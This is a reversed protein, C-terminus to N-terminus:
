DDLDDFRDYEPIPDDDEELGNLIDDPDIEEEKIDLDDILDDPDEIETNFMKEDEFGM